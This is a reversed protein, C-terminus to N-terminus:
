PCNGQPCTNCTVTVGTGVVGNVACGPLCGQVCDCEVLGSCSHPNCDALFAGGQRIVCAQGAACQDGGSLGCTVQGCTGTEVTWQNSSCQARVQGYTSCREYFCATSGSCTAGQTPPDAPCPTPAVCPCQGNCAIPVPVCVRGCASDYTQGDTGCVPVYAGLACNCDVCSSGNCRYAGNCYNMGDAPFPDCCPEGPDGCARAGGAGAGGTSGGGTGAGGTSGGGTGTRVGGSGRGGAGGAQAAGGTASTAGGTASAGGASSGGSGEGGDAREHCLRDVCSFAEGLKRCDDDTKCALFHTETEEKSDGSSCSFAAIASLAVSLLAIQPIVHRM